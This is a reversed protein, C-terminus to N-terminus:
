KKSNAFLPIRLVIPLPLNYNNYGAREAIAYSFTDLPVDYNTVPDGDNMAVTKAYYNGAIAAGGIVGSYSTIKAQMLLQDYAAQAGAMGSQAVMDAYKLYFGARNGSQLISQLESKQSTTLGM